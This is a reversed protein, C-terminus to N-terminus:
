QNKSMMIKCNLSKTKKMWDYYQKAFGEINAYDELIKMFSQDVVINKKNEFAYSLCGKFIFFEDDSFKDEFYFNFKPIPNKDDAKQYYIQNPHLNKITIKRKETSAREFLINKSFANVLICDSLEDTNAIFVINFRLADNIKQYYYPNQKKEEDFVQKEAQYFVEDFVIYKKDDLSEKIEESAVESCMIVTNLFLLNLLLLRKM